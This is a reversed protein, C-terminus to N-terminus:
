KIVGFNLINKEDKKYLDLQIQALNKENTFNYLEPVFYQTKLAEFIGQKQMKKIINQTLSKFTQRKNEYFYGDFGYRIANWRNQKLIQMPIQKFEANQAYLCLAQYLIIAAKIRKFDHISDGIRLELTGFEPKIRLDWWIDALKNITKSKEYLFYEKQMKAFSDFYTPIGVRPLRDFKSLRYSLLKTDKKQYIPSNALLCIFIPSYNIMFNYARLAEDSNEFGVHIHLGCISFNEILVGFEEQIKEYRENELVKIKKNKLHYIGNAVLLIDHKKAVKAVKKALKEIFETAENANKCVPSIMEVLCSSFEDHIYPLIKKPLKSKIFSSSYSLKHTKEDIYRAELEVGLSYANKNKWGKLGM